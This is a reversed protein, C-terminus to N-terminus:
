MGCGIRTDFSVSIVRNCKKGDVWIAWVYGCKPCVWGNSLNTLPISEVPFFTGNHKGCNGSTLKDCECCGNM